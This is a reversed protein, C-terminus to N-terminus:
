VLSKKDAGTDPGEYGPMGGYGESFGRPVSHKVPLTIFQTHTVCSVFTKHYEELHAEWEGQFFIGGCHGCLVKDKLFVKENM